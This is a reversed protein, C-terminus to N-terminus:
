EILAKLMERLCQRTTEAMPEGGTGLVRAGFSTGKKSHTTAWVTRGTEAEVMHLDLTVVPITVAGSRITESQSVSGLIVAQVGLEGALSVIEETSPQKIQGRVAGPFKALVANVEGPEVVDVANSALLETVTLRGARFGAQRDSSLNEFPLVAVREVFAFDFSPNLFETPQMASGCGTMTLVVSLTLTIRFTANM